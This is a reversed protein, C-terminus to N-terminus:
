SLREAEILLVQCEAVGKRLQKAEAYEPSNWFALARAKDASRTWVAALLGAKHLNKAMPIGM